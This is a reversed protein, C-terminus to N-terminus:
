ATSLDYSQTFELVREGDDEEFDEVTAGLFRFTTAEPHKEVMIKVIGAVIDDMKVRLPLRIDYRVYFSSSPRESVGIVIYGKTMLSTMILGQILNAMRDNDEM